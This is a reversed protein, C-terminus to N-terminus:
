FDIDDYYSPAHIGPVRDKLLPQVSPRSKLRQYWSKLVRRDRWKIEGLFDLCSLHGGAAIDALSFQRGALWDRRGLLDEIYDLHHGLAVRGERLTPSHPHGQRTMVKEVKEFLIYSEVEAAFKVDFWDCLRRAEARELPEAALLKTRAAADHAYECIARAGAIVAIGGPTQEVLAPPAGEAVQDLFAADPAWPNASVLAVKVKAEALAIRAQRSAPDLPWHYLTRM